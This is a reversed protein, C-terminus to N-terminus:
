VYFIVIRGIKRPPVNIFIMIGFFAAFFKSEFHKEAHFYGHCLVFVHMKENVSNILIKHHSVGIHVIIGM